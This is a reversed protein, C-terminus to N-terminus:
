ADEARSLQRRVAAALQEIHEASVEIKALPEASSQYEVALLYPYGASDEGDLSAAFEHLLSGSDEPRGQFKFYVYARGSPNLECSDVTVILPHLNLADVLPRIRSDVWANVMTREQHHKDVGTLDLERAAIKPLFSLM